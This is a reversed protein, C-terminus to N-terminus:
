IVAPDRKAKNPNQINSFPTCMPSGVLLAPKEQEIRLEAKRRQEPISFDWPNGLEDTGTLDFVTGPM